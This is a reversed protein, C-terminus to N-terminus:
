LLRVSVRRVNSFHEDYTILSLGAQVCLAAIWIDNTPLPTEQQRLDVVIEAYVSSVEEDVSLIRTVPQRLFEQLELENERERKGLKFGTRLEGLVIAPISIERASTIIEVVRM